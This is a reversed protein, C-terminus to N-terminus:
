EIYGLGRLKELVSELDEESYATEDPQYTDPRAYPVMQIPHKELFDPRFASTIPKGDLELPLPLDMLHLLTPVLDLINQCPLTVGEQIGSGKLILIGQSRHTGGIVEEEEVWFARGRPDAQQVFANEEVLSLLLDPAAADLHAGHWITETRHARFVQSGGSPDRFSEFADIIRDRLAEYEPGPEVIGGPIVDSRNIYITKTANTVYAQTRTWDINSYYHAWGPYRKLPLRSIVRQLSEPLAAWIRRAARLLAPRSLV